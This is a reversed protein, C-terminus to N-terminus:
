IDDPSLWRFSVIQYRRGFDTNATATPLDAPDDGAPDVYDPLRQVVAECWARAEVNGTAPNATDGYSRITFTDSRASLSPGIASLVDGQLLYGPFGSIRNPMRYDVDGYYPNKDGKEAWARTRVNFQTETVDKQQNIVRDIASQLAGSVGLRQKDPSEADTFDRRGPSLQRNVFQALSLFPGRLRVQLVMEEAIANIEAQTLNRFGNWANTTDGTKADDAAGVPSIIRPFPATLDAKDTETGVPVDRLGSLVAKWADVSTSNVNFAGAVLLNAAAAHVGRFNAPEDRAATATDRFPQYRANVLVDDPDDFDFDGTQPYSSFTFRDWLIDNWLYSGDYQSGTVNHDSRFFTLDRAVRPTAYSNGIPYAVQWQNPNLDGTDTSSPVGALNFHQLQGISNVPRGPLPLDYLINM